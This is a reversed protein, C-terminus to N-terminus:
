DGTLWRIFTVQLCIGAAWLGVAVLSVFAIIILDRLTM